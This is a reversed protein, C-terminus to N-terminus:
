EVEIKEAKPAEALNDLREIGRDVVARVGLLMERRANRFHRGWPTSYFRRACDEIWCRKPTGSTDDAM